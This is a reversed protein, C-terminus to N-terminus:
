KRRRRYAVVAAAAGPILVLLQEPEPVPQVEHSPEHDQDSHWEEGFAAVSAAALMIIGAFILV